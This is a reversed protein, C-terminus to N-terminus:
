GFGTLKEVEKLRLAKRIQRPATLGDMDHEPIFQCGRPLSECFVSRGHFAAAWMRVCVPERNAKGYMRNWLFVGPNGRVNKTQPILASDRGHYLM